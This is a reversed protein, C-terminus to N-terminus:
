NYTVSDALVFSTTAPIASERGQEVAQGAVWASRISDNLTYVRGYLTVRQGNALQTNRAIMDSGLLVPYANTGDLDVTVVGRGLTEKVAIDRLVGATGVLSGPADVLQAPIIDPAEGTDGETVVEVGRDAAQAQLNLWYLFGAVALVALIALL